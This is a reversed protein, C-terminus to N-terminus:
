PDMGGGKRQDFYAKNYLYAPSQPKCRGAKENYAEAQKPDGLRDYCVCLQLYPIYDYCDPMVFAGSQDNREMGAALKYWFIAQRYAQKELFYRGIECCLEARPTDYELSRM